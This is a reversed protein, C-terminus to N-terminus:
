LRMLLFATALTETLTGQLSFPHTSFLFSQLSLYLNPPLSAFNYDLCSPIVTSGLSFFWESGTQGYSHMVVCGSCAGLPAVTGELMQRCFCHSPMMVTQSVSLLLKSSRSLPSSPPLGEAWWMSIVSYQTGILRLM